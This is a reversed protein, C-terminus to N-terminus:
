TAVEIVDLLVWLGFLLHDFFFRFLHQEFNFVVIFILVLDFRLRSRVEAGTSSLDFKCGVSSAVIRSDLLRM